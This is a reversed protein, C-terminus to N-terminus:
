AVLRYGHGRVTEILPRGLAATLKNRLRAVLTRLREPGAEDAEDWLRRAIEGPDVIAGPRLSLRELLAYERASLTVYRGDLRASRGHPDLMLGATDGGARAGGLRALADLRALLEMFHVPRVFCADVGARLIGAREAASAHDTVAVLAAGCAAEAVRRAPIEAAANAEVLVLDWREQEVAFLLGPLDAVTEVVHGAEELAHALYPDAGSLRANLVRV